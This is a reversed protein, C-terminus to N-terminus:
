QDCKLPSSSANSPKLQSHLALTFTSNSQRSNHGFDRTLRGCCRCIRADKVADLTARMIDTDYGSHKWDDGVFGFCSDAHLWAEGDFYEGIIGWLGERNVKAIFEERDRQLQSDPINPNAGPNFCDGELDGVSCTEDPVVRLRVNGRKPEIAEGSSYEAVEQKEWELRTRANSLAWSAHFGRERNRQYLRRLQKNRKTMRV